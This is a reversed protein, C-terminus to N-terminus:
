SSGQDHVEVYLGIWIRIVNQGLAALRLSGRLKRCVHGIISDRNAFGDGRGEHPNGKIRRVSGIVGIKQGVVRVDVEGIGDQAGFADAVNRDETGSLIRHSQPYFGVLQGLQADGNRLDDASNLRLVRHVRGAFYAALWSRLALFEGVGNKGM